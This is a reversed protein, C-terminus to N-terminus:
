WSSYPTGDLSSGPAGSHVDIIGSTTQEAAFVAGSDTETDWTSSSKTIPDIPVERLYGGSVLDDLSEPGKKKDLTYQDILSRMTFLHDRLVAERSSVISTRYNPIAISLLVLVITIVFMLEVLTFGAWRRRLCRPATGNTKVPAPSIM